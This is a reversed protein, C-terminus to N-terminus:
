TIALSSVRVRPYTTIMRRKKVMVPLCAVSLISICVTKTEMYLLKKIMMPMNRSM